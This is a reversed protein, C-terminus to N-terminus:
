QRRKYFLIYAAPTVVKSALSVSGDDMEYWRGDEQWKIFATYHGGGMGGYHNSVAYLDYIPPQSQNGLAFESLDLGEVPFDVFANLKENWLGRSKFRKLAIVLIEPLKFLQYTKTAEVHEKCQNCYWTNDRDLKEPLSSQRLCDFLTIDDSSVLGPSKLLREYRTCLGFQKFDKILNSWEVELTLEDATVKLTSLLGQVNVSSDIPLACSKCLNKGCLPCPGKSKSHPPKKVLLKYHGPVLRRLEEETVEVPQDINKEIFTKFQRLVHLHLDLLTEEKGPFVLHTYACEIDMRARKDSERTVLVQITLFDTRDTPTEYAFLSSYKVDSLEKSDSPYSRILNNSIAAWIFSSTGVVEALSSRLSELRSSMILDATIEIPLKSSDLPKFYVIQRRSEKNPIQLSFTLFPDYTVSTRSCNPCILTSKYQGHMLDVVVSMNRKLHREWSLRSSEESSQDSTFELSETYPKDIVRNLDEHLGDLVYSLLEQSDHQNYGSFQPAFKEIVRKLYNPVVPKASTKVERLFEAYSIALTGGTGIPNKMNIEDRYRGTLFHMTLPETFILCQLASNMFCTNGLNRLGVITRGLPLPAAASTPKPKKCVQKHFPFHKAQCKKSCYKVAKCASCLKLDFRAKCLVCVDAAEKESLFHWTDDVKKFEIMLVDGVAFGADELLCDAPLEKGGKVETKPKAQLQLSKFDTNADLRWYRAEKVNFQNRKFDTGIVREVKSKVQTLASKRSMQIFKAPLPDSTVQPLVLVKVRYLFVEVQSVSETLQITKRLLSPGQTGHAKTLVKAAEYPVVKFDKEEQLGPKLDNQKANEIFYDERRLEETLETTSIPGPAEGQGRCYDEWRSLWSSPLIQWISVGKPDVKCADLFLQQESPVETAQLRELWDSYKKSTEGAFISIAQKVEDQAKSIEGLKGFADARLDITEELYKLRALESRIQATHDQAKRLSEIAELYKHQSIQSQATKFFALFTPFCHASQTFRAEAEDYRAAHHLAHGERLLADAKQSSAM